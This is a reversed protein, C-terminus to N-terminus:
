VSKRRKEEREARIRELRDDRERMRQEREEDRRKDELRMSVMMEMLKELSSKESERAMTLESNAEALRVVQQSVQNVNQRLIKPTLIKLFGEGEAQDESFEQKCLQESGFGSESDVLTQEGSSDLDITDVETYDVAERRRIRNSERVLGRNAKKTLRYTSDKGESSM